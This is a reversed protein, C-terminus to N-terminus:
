KVMVKIASVNGDADVMKVINVGQQYSDLRAGSLSYIGVVTKVSQSTVDSINVLGEDTSPTISSDTGYYWLEFDDFICWCTSVLDDGDEKYVGIRLAGDSGVNIFVNVQYLLLYEGDDDTAHFYNDADAMTNPVYWSNGDDDTACYGTNYDDSETAGVSMHKIPTSVTGESSTAYLYATLTPDTDADKYLVYADWDDQIEGTRHFGLVRVEYLGEPLVADIDQYSNFDMGYREANTSTTGGTSFSDSDGEDWGEFDGITDFTPNIILSTMEIPNDDSADTTDPVKLASIMAELQETLEAIEEGSLDTGQEAANDYLATAADFTEDSATNQYDDIADGLDSVAEWFAEYADVSADATNIADVLEYLADYMSDADKSALAATATTVAESLAERDPDGFEEDDYEAAQEIYDELVSALADANKGMYTLQFNDWLSWRDDISGETNRIGVKINGDTVLGYVTNEYYGLEMVQSAGNMDNVVYLGTTSASPVVASGYQTSLEVEMINMVPASFNNLYLYTLIELEQAGYYDDYSDDYGDPRYFANATLAYLGNPLGSIEQYMDFNDNWVECNLYSSSVTPTALSSDYSWGTDDGTSFDPNTLLSTLSAGEVLANKQALQFLSDLYETEEAIEEATLRGEYGNLIYEMVGNPYGWTEIGEDNDDASMQLYDSLIFVDDIEMALGQEDGENLWEEIEACLEVYAAYNTISLELEEQADAMATAAEIITEKDTATSLTTLIEEYAEAAAASHYTEELDYATATELVTSGWFQYADDANGYYTLQLNDFITWDYSILTEKKIGVLITDSEAAAFYLYNQYHGAEFWVQTSQMTNPAYTGDDLETDGSHLSEGRESVARKVGKEVTGYVSSQAYLRSYNYLTSDEEYTSLDDSYEGARYFAQMDIRYVGEPLNTLQQYCDLNLNWYEANYYTSSVTPSGEWGTDDGTSFDPNTLSSTFDAPNDLSAEGELYEVLADSISAEAANLEEVTSSTNNYVALQESLDIGPAAEYASELTSKLSMAAAYLQNVPKALVIYEAYVASDVAAWVGKFDDLDIYDGDNLYCIGDSLCGFYLEDGSYDSGAMATNVRLTFTNDGQDLVDFYRFPDTNNDTWTSSYYPYGDDGKSISTCYYSGFKTVYSLLLYTYDYAVETDFEEEESSDPNTRSFKVRTGITDNVSCRTQWYPSVNSGQHNIYFGNYGVNYLYIVQDESPMGIYDPAPYKEWTATFEQASAAVSLLTLLSLTLLFRRNM